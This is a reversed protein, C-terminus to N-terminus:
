RHVKVPLDLGRSQLLSGRRFAPSSQNQVTIKVRQVGLTSQMGMSPADVDLDDARPLRSSEAASARSRCRRLIAGAQDRERIRGNQPSLTALGRLSGPLRGDRAKLHLQVSLSAPCGRM